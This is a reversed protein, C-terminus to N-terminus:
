DLGRGVELAVDAVLHALQRDFGEACEAALAQRADIEEQALVALEDGVLDVRQRAEGVDAHIGLHKLRHADAIGFQDVAEDAMREGAGPRPWRWSPSRRWRRRMAGARM